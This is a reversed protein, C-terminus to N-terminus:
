VYDKTTLHHDAPINRKARKSLLTPFLQPPLGTGPRKIAINDQTLLEGAIITRLSVISKRVSKKMPLESPNPRKHHTGLIKPILTIKECLTKLENFTASAAHDPGPLTRDLTVHKEIMCAGLTAAMLPVQIGRTHDSYGILVPLKKMMTVMANLNVEEPPCPYNTTAHLAIIKKNGTKTITQIATRVEPLTAMGTSIIIPKRFHAAYQLAPINTLDGSGFKYAAVNFRHLLDISEFGGHPASLFTIGIKNCLKLLSPYFQEKLELKKLLALQSQQSKTNRRQYPAMPNIETTVEDARFTQFKVANAGAKKAAIIMRKALGLKGNHNVGAEAIVYPTHTYGIPIKNIYLPKHPM